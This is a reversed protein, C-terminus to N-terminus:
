ILKWGQSGTMMRMAALGCSSRDPLSRSYNLLSASLVTGGSKTVVSTSRTYALEGGEYPFILEGDGTRLMASAGMGEALSGPNSVEVIVHFLQSGETTVRRVHNVQTVTGPIESMMAPLSVSVTQGTYIADVYAYSFYLELKLTRDDVLTAIKM